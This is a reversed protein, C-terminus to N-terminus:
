GRLAGGLARRSDEFRQRAAGRNERELEAELEARVDEHEAEVRARLERLEEAERALADRQEEFAQRQRELRQVARERELSQEPLLAKAREVVSSPLGHRTAVTLASSAGPVGMTLRFTPAMREFDYSM